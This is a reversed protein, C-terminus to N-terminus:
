ITGFSMPDPTAELYGTGARDRLARDHVIVRVAPRRSGFLTGPDADMALRVLQVLADATVLTAAARAAPDVFRPGRRPSLVADIASRVIAGNEPDLLFGGRFMGDPQQRVYFYRDDRRAIERAAIGPADLEDRRQRARIFLQDAPFRAADAILSRVAVLKVAEVRTSKTGHQVLGEPGTFGARQALGAQGLERRSRHAIEGAHAARLADFHRLHAAIPTMASILDADSMGAFDELAALDDPSSRLQSIIESM